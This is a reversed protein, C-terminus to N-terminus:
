WEDASELAALLPDGAREGAIIKDVILHVLLDIREEESMSLTDQVALCKESQKTAQKTTHSM